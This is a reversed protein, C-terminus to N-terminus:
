KYDIFRQRKSSKMLQAMRSAQSHDLTAPTPAIGEKCSGCQSSNGPLKVGCEFCYGAPPNAQWERELREDRVGRWIGKLLPLDLEDILCGGYLCDSYNQASWLYDTDAKIKALIERGEETDKAPNEYQATATATM